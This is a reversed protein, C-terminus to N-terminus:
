TKKRESVGMNETPVVALKTEIFYLSVFPLLKFLYSGCGPARENRIDSSLSSSSDCELLLLALWAGGSVVLDVGNTVGVGEVEVDGVEVKENKDRLLLLWRRLDFVFIVFVLELKTARM